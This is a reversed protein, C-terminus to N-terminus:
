TDKRAVVSASSSIAAKVDLSLVCQALTLFCYKTSPLLLSEMSVISSASNTTHGKLSAIFALRLSIKFVSIKIEDKCHSKRGLYGGGVGTAVARDIM